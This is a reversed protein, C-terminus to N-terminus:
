SSQNLRRTGSCPLGVCWGMMNEIVNTCALLRRLPMPLNLRFAPPSALRQAETIELTGTQVEALTQNAPSPYSGVLRTGCAVAGRIEM